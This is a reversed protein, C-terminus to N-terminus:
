RGQHDPGLKPALPWRAFDEVFAAVRETVADLLSAGKEASAHEPRGMHGSQTRRHFRQFTQVGPWRQTRKAATDGEPEGPSIAELDVLEPRLALMASTEYECAHTLRPSQMGHREPDMADAALTWWSSFALHAADASDDTDTLETLAHGAPVINGGHGNLFFLRRFGVALVSRAISQIMQAYVSPLVSVTGPYDMHHHSCGLWLTPLVVARDGLRQELREAIASVQISDVFLPMHAGHQECSGLPIVVPLDKDLQAIHPSALEQWLM